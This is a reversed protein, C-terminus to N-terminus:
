HPIEAGLIERRCMKVSKQILMITQRELWPTEPVIAAFLALYFYPKDLFSVTMAMYQWEIGCKPLLIALLRDEIALRLRM